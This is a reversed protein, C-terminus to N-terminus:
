RERDFMNKWDRGAASGDSIIQPQGAVAAVLEFAITSVGEIRFCLGTYSEEIRPLLNPFLV